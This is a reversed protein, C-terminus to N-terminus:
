NKIIKEAIKGDETIFNVIYIGPKLGSLNNLVITNQGNLVSVSQIYVPQGAINNVVVSGQTQRSSNINLKINSVFPNPYVTLSGSIASGDLRLAIIESL